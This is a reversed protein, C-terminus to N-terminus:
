NWNRSVTSHIKLEAEKWLFVNNGVIQSRCFAVKKAKQQEKRLNFVTFTSVEFHVIHQDVVSSNM